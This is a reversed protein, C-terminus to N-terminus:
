RGHHDELSMFSTIKELANEGIILLVISGIAALNGWTPAIEFGIVCSFWGLLFAIVIKANM